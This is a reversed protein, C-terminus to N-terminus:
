KINTDGPRAGLARTTRTQGVEPASKFTRTGEEEEEEEEEERPFSSSAFLPSSSSSPSPCRRKKSDSASANFWKFSSPLTLVAVLHAHTKPTDLSPSWTPANTAVFTCFAIRNGVPSSTNRIQSVLHILVVEIDLGTLCSV